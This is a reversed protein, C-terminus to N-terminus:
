IRGHKKLNCERCLIQLNKESNSGGKSLPIIHDFELAHTQGCEVCQGGCRQWVSSMVAQPIKKRKNGSSQLVDAQRHYMKLALEIYAHLICADDSVIVCSAKKSKSLISLEDGDLDISVLGSFPINLVHDISKFIIRESTVFVEGEHVFVTKEDETEEEDFPQMAYDLHFFVLETNKAIIGSTKIPKLKGKRVKEAKELKSFKKKVDTIIRKSPQLHECLWYILKKDEDIDEFYYTSLYFEMFSNVERKAYAVIDEFYINRDVCFSDIKDFAKPNLPRKYSLYDALLLKFDKITDQSVEGSGDFDDENDGDVEIGYYESLAKLGGYFGQGILKFKWSGRYQYLEGLILASEKRDKGSIEGSCVLDSASKIKVNLRNVISFNASSDSLTACIAVKLIDNSLTPININFEITNANIGQLQITKKKNSLQSYFVMDDDTKIKLDKGYLAYASFDIESLSVGFVSITTSLLSNPVITNAGLILNM